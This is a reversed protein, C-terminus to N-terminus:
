TQASTINQVLVLLHVSDSRLCISLHQFLISTKGTGKCSSVHGPKSPPCIHQSLLPVFTPASFFSLHRPKFFSTQRPKSSLRICTGPKSSLCMEQNHVRVFTNTKLLIIDQSDLLVPRPESSPCFRTKSLSVFVFGLTAVKYWPYGQSNKHETLTPLPPRVM